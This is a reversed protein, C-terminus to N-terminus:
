KMSDKVESHPFEWYDIGWYEGMGKFLTDRITDIQEQKLLDKTSDTGYLNKQIHLWIQHIFEQDIPADFYRAKEYFARQTVGEDQLADAMLKFDTFLAKRQQDTRQNDIKMNVLLLNM